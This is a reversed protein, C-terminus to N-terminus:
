QMNEVPVPAIQSSTKAPTSVPVGQLVDGLSEEAGPPLLGVSYFPGTFPHNKKECHSQFRQSVIELEHITMRVAEKFGGADLHDTTVAVMLPTPAEQKNDAELHGSGRGRIRVKARTRDAIKRMNCGGRGILMPVLDFDPAQMHLYIHVWLRAPRRPGRGGGTSAEPLDGSLAEFLSPAQTPAKTPRAKPSLTGIDAALAALSSLANSAAPPSQSAQDFPPRKKMELFTALAQDNAMSAAHPPLAPAGASIAALHSSAAQVAAAHAALHGQASAWAISAQAPPPLAWNLAPPTVSPLYPMPQSPLPQYPWAPHTPAPLPPHAAAAGLSAIVNPDPCMAPATAATAAAPPMGFGLPFPQQMPSSVAAHFPSTPILPIGGFLAATMHAQVQAQVMSAVDLQTQGSQECTQTGSNASSQPPQTTVTSEGDHHSRSPIPLRPNAKVGGNSYMTAMYQGSDHYEDLLDETTYRRHRQPPEEDDMDENKSQEFEIEERMEETCFYARRGARNLPPAGEEDTAQRTPDRPAEQEVSDISPSRNRNMCTQARRHAVPSAERAHERYPLADEDASEMSPTRRLAATGVCTKVRRKGRLPSYADEQGLLVPSRMQQSQLSTASSATASLSQDDEDPDCQGDRESRNDEVLKYPMTRCQRRGHNVFDESQEDVELFTNKVCFGDGQPLREQGLSAM